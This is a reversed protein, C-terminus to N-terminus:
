KLSEFVLEIFEEFPATPVRGAENKSAEKFATWQKTGVIKRVATIFKSDEIYELIEVDDMVDAPLTYEVENFTVTIDEKVADKATLHDQPKKPAAM